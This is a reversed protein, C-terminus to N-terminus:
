LKRSLIKYKYVCLLRSMCKKEENAHKDGKDVHLRTYNEWRITKEAEDLFQM